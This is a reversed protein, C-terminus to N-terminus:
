KEDMLPGKSVLGTKCNLCLSCLRHSILHFSESLSIVSVVAAFTSAERSGEAVSRRKLDLKANQCIGM